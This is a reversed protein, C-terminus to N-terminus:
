VMKKKSLLENTEQLATLIHIDKESYFESLAVSWFVTQFLLFAVVFAIQGQMNIRKADALADVPPGDDEFFQDWLKTKDNPTGRDEALRKIKEMQKDEENPEFDEAIRSAQYTHYIMIVIIINFSYLLFYDILKFYSTKPVMVNISDQVNAIVLMVTISVMIRDQFNDIRYYFTMYAVILLLVSQLFVSIAHYFWRRTLAMTVKMGAYKRGSENLPKLMMQGVHYELLAKKGTYEVGEGDLNMDVYEVTAGSMDFVMKCVQTDFPYYLLDYDCTWDIFYERKMIIFNEAGRYVSAELAMQIDDPMPQGVRQFVTKAVEDVTSGGISKANTFGLTPTWILTQMTKSLSNLDTRGRLDYYTLRPDVWRMSMVFDATYYLNLTDIKPFALISINIMVTIAGGDVARPFLESRYADEIKLLRCDKEDSSDPCDVVLNCRQRINVCTGDDCTFKDPFCTTMTMSRKVGGSLQCIGDNIVWTKRGLPYFGQPVTDDATLDAYKETEYFSELRWVKTKPQYMIHSKGLGRWHPKLNWFEHIFYEIDFFGEMLKVDQQCLGRLTLNMRNGFECLACYSSDCYEDRWRRDIYSRACNQTPGGNPYSTEWFGDFGLLEKTYPNVWVGEEWEDSAGIWVVINGSAHMCREHIDTKVLSETVDMIEHYNEENIPTPYVGGLNSCFSQYFWFNFTSPFLFFKSDGEENSCLDFTAKRSVTTDGQIWYAEDWKVVNGFVDSRCQAINEIDYDEMPFDWLNYQTVAGSWSQKRNYDGRLSDQDQGVVFVGGPRITPPTNDGAFSGSDMKEGDVYLKYVDRFADYTLCIHIWTFYPPMERHWACYKTGRQCMRFASRGLHYESYLENTDENTYAYTTIYMRPRTYYMQFRHCFTYSLIGQEYKSQEITGNYESHSTIKAYGKRQYETIFIGDATDENVDLKYLAQGQVGALYAVVVLITVVPILSGPQLM